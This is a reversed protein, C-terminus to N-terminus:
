RVGPLVVARAVRDISRVVVRELVAGAAPHDRYAGAGVVGTVGLMVLLAAIGGRLWLHTCRSPRRDVNALM